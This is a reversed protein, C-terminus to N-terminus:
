RIRAWGSQGGHVVRVWGGRVEAVPVREGAPVVFLPAAGQSPRARLHTDTAVRAYGKGGSSRKGSNEGVAAAKQVQEPMRVQKAQRTPEPKRVPNDFGAAALAPGSLYTSYVWGSEGDQTKVSVWGRETEGMILGEGPQLTRIVGTKTSPGIRMNVGSDGVRLAKDPDVAAGPEADLPDVAATETDQQATLLGRDDSNQGALPARDPATQAAFSAQSSPAVTQAAPEPLSAERAVVDEATGAPALSADLQKVLDPAASVYSSNVRPVDDSVSSARPAAEDVPWFMLAGLGLVAAPLGYRVLPFHTHRM